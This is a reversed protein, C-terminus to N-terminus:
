ETKVLVRTDGVRRTLNLRDFHELLLVAQNRPLGVLNKWVPVTVSGNSTLYAILQTRLDQVFLASFWLDGAQVAVGARELAALLARSGDPGLASVERIRAASTGRGGAREVEDGALVMARALTPELRGEQHAPVVIDGVVVIGEEDRPSRQARAAVIAADAALPGARETLKQHLTALPLGRDLPARRAHDHVLRRALSALDSLTERTMYAGSRSVLAGQAVEADAARGLDAAELALRAHLTSLDLPHPTEERLLASLASRANGGQVADALERRAEGRSRPHPRADLVTGGGVLSGADVRAGRLLFRDGGRLARPEALRLRVLQRTEGLPAARTVRVPVHTSGLHLSLSAGRRLTPGEFAADVATTTSLALDTTLLDGRRVDNAAVPLNVALRTPAMAHGVSDDHVRLARAVTLRRGDRGLLALDQGVALSGSALTGTVVTGAGRVHFVRDIWLRAPGTPAPRVIQRLRTAVVERVALASEPRASSWSAVSVEFRGALLERAEADALAVTEADVLDTKTLVVVAHRIGLLTSVGAHERTQPMVGENAAVVLLVLEIGSAGAIMTHVLKQHGPVDIITAELDPALHWPAFGLEISIGRRKEEALRDTDIGTLARVLTTKGHDVHGATGIVFRPM